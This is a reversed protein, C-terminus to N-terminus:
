KNKRKEENEENKRKKENEKNKKYFDEIPIKLLTGLNFQKNYGKHVGAVKFNMLNIIPSGSSGTLTKCNHNITYKDEGIFKIKGLSYKVDKGEEYHVIYVSKKDYLKNFDEKFLNEDIDIISEEGINDDPKIEIFTVDKEKDTFTKRSNSITISKKIRENNLSFNIKKGELINQEDLVHNCTVLVLLPNTKKPFPILCFFGTGITGNDLKIKCACNKMQFMIQEMQETNLSDSSNGREAEENYKKSGGTGMKIIFLFM